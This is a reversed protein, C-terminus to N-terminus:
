PQAQDRGAAEARDQRCAWLYLYVGAGVIVGAQLLSIFHPHPQPLLQVLETLM